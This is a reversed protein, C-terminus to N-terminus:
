RRITLLQRKDAKQLRQLVDRCIIVPLVIFNGFFDADCLYVKIQMSDDKAGGYIILRTVFHLGLCYVQKIFFDCSNM